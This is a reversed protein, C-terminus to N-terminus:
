VSLVFLCYLLVVIFHLSFKARADIFHELAKLYLANYHICFLQSNLILVPIATCKQCKRWTEKSPSHVRYVCIPFVTSHFASVNCAQEDIETEFSHM